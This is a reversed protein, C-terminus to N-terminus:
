ELGTFDIDSVSGNVQVVKTVFRYQRSTVSITYQGPEVDPFSYYGLSATPVSRRNNNADTMTVTANRLGVGSPTRVLGSVIVTPPAAAGITVSGDQYGTALLDGMVSSTSRSIPTNGFTVLTPGEPAEAAVNFKIVVVERAPGSAAFANMSDLLVGIRGSAAQTLNQTIMTGSPVGSGLNVVPTNLKSPDFNVSFGMAVEDGMSDLEVVVFAEGGPEANTSVARLIRGASQSPAADAIAPGTVIGFAGLILSVSLAYFARRHFVFNISIM